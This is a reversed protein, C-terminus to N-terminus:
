VRPVNNLEDIPVILHQFARIAAVGTIYNLRGCEENLLFNRILIDPENFGVSARISTTGSFRPHVEFVKVEGNELRCQINAPGRIGIELAIKECFDQILPHKIIFGQSYGTSLTFPYGNIVRQSGLSLGMLKRQVVISDIVRGDAAIMVGVTYEDEAAGVYEQFIVELGTTEELYQLLETRDKLVAVNRSGGSDNVPKGIVPFGTEAVLDEWDIARVTKPTGFGKKILWQYLRWKDRCIEVVDLTNAILLCGHRELEHRNRAMVEVEVETGPLLVQVKEKKILKVLSSIYNLEHAKPVLYRRDVQFLGFSFSDADTAVISYKEPVLALAQLIQHGFSRGGVGTVLVCIKNEAMQTDGYDDM